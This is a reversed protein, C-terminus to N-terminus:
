NYNNYNNFATNNRKGSTKNEKLIDNAKVKQQKQKQM